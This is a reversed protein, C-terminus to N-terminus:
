TTEIQNVQADRVFCLEKVIKYLGYNFALVSLALWFAGIIKSVISDQLLLVVGIVHFGIYLLMYITLFFIDEGEVREQLEDCTVCRKLASIRLCNIPSKCIQCQLSQRMMRREAPHATKLKHSFYQQLCTLHVYEISGRCECPNVMADQVEVSLCIRCQRVGSSRLSRETM